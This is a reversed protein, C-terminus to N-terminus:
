ELYFSLCIWNEHSSRIRVNPFHNLCGPFAACKGDYWLVNAHCFSFCSWTFSTSIRCPSESIRGYFMSKWDSSKAGGGLFFFGFARLMNTPRRNNESSDDYSRFLKISKLGDDLRNLIPFSGIELFQIRPDQTFLSTLENEQVKARTQQHNTFSIRSQKGVKEAHIHVRM